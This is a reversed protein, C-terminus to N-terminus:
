MDFVIYIYIASDFFNSKKEKEEVKNGSKMKVYCNENTETKKHTDIKAFVYVFINLLLYM